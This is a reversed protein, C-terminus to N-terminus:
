SCYKNLSIKGGPIGIQKMDYDRFLHQHKPPIKQRNLYREAMRPGGINGGISVPKIKSKYDPDRGKILHDDFYYARGYNHDCVTYVVNNNFCVDSIPNNNINPLQAILHFERNVWLIVALFGRCGAFLINGDPHRRLANICNFDKEFKSFNILEANEDFSLAALYACGSEFNRKEAGGLFFADGDVSTEM